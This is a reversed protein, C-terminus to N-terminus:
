RGFNFGSKECGEPEFCHCLAQGARLWIGGCTPLGLISIGWRKSVAPMEGGRRGTNTNSISPLVAMLFFCIFGTQWM